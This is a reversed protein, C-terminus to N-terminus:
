IETFYLNLIKQYKEMFEDTGPKYGFCHIFPILTHFDKGTTTQISSPINEVNFTMIPFEDFEIPDINFHAHAIAFLIEDTKGGTYMSRCSYEDYKYFVKKAYDFYDNVFSDDKIFYFFGGHVHSVTKGFAYSVEKIYGWHWSEDIKLGLQALKRGDLFNWVKDTSCQCLMDSDVTINKEYQSYRNLFLRPYLCYKEFSTKCENWLDKDFIEFLIIKDFVDSSSVHKKDLVVISVPRFDGQKRLTKVFYECEKVYKEGLGLLIYGEM